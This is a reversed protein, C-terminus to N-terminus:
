QVVMSRDDGTFQVTYRGKFRLYQQLLRYCKKLANRRVKRFHIAGDLLFYSSMLYEVKRPLRCLDSSKIAPYNVCTRVTSRNIAHYYSVTSTAKCVIMQHHNLSHNAALHASATCRPILVEPGRDPQDKFTKSYILRFKM